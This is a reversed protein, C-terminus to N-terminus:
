QKQKNLQQQLDLFLSEFQDVYMPRMKEYIANGKGSLIGNNCEIDFRALIGNQMEFPIDHFKVQKDENSLGTQNFLEDWGVEAKYRDIWKCFLEVAEPYKELLDNWFNEKNLNQMNNNKNKGGIHLPSDAINVTQGSGYKVVIDM